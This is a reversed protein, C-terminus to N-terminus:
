DGMRKLARFISGYVETFIKLIGFNRVNIKNTLVISEDAIIHIFDDYVKYVIGTM